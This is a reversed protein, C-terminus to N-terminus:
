NGPLLILKGLVVGTPHAKAVHKPPAPVKRGANFQPLRLIRPDTDPRLHTGRSIYSVYPVDGDLVNGSPDTV